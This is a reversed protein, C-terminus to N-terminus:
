LCGWSCRGAEAATNQSPCLPWGRCYWGPFSPQPGGQQLEASLPLPMKLEWSQWWPMSQSQHLSSDVQTCAFPERYNQACLNSVTLVCGVM